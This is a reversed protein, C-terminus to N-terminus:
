SNELAEAMGRETIGLSVIFILASSKGSARGGGGAGKSIPILSTLPSHPSTVLRDETFDWRDGSRSIDEHKSGGGMWLNHWRQLAGGQGSETM